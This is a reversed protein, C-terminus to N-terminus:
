WAEERDRYARSDNGPFLTGAGSSTAPLAQPGTRESRAVSLWDRVQSIRDRQPGRAPPEPGRALRFWSHRVGAIANTWNEIRFGLRRLEFIRANYQAIGLALPEPLAIERGPAAFFLALLQCRQTSQSPNV